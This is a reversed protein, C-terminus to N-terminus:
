GFKQRFKLVFTLFTAVKKHLIMISSLTERPFMQIQVLLSKVPCINVLVTPRLNNSTWIEPLRYAVM